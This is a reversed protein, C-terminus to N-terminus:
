SGVESSAADGAPDQDLELLVQAADARAQAAAARVRAVEALLKEAVAEWESLALELNDWSHTWVALPGLRLWCRELEATTHMEVAGATLEHMYATLHARPGDPLAPSTPM